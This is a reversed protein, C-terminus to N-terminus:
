RKWSGSNKWCYEPNRPPLWQFNRSSSRQRQDYCNGCARAGRLGTILTHGHSSCSATDDCKAQRGGRGSSIVWVPLRKCSTQVGSGVRKTALGSSFLREVAVPSLVRSTDATTTKPNRIIPIVKDDEIDLLARASKKPLNGPMKKNIFHIVQAKVPPKGTSPPPAKTQKKAFKKLLDHGLRQAKYGWGIM